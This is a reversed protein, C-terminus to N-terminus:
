DLGPSTQPYDFGRPVVFNGDCAGVMAELVAHSASFQIASPKPTGNLFTDSAALSRASNRPTM